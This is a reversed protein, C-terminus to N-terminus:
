ATILPSQLVSGVTVGAPDAITTSLRVADRETLIGTPASKRMVVVCSYHNHHMAAIADSLTDDIGVTAIKASMVRAVTKFESLDGVDLHPLFDGETIIGLVRNDADIVVLHRFGQELLIRYAARFDVDSAACLPPKSMVEEIKIKGTDRGEALLSVADRETFIGLPHREEDTAVVCSIRLSAMMALVDSIIADPAVTVISSTLLEILTTNKM